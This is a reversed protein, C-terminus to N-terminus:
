GQMGNITQSLISAIGELGGRQFALSIHCLYLNSGAIKEAMEKSVVKAVILTQLTHINTARNVCYKTSELAYDVTFRSESIEKSNVNVHSVLKQFAGVDELSDHAGYSIGLLDTVLSEQSYAKREPLVNKFLSLTDVCM